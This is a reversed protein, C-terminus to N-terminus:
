ARAPSNYESRRKRTLYHLSHISITLPIRRAKIMDVPQIITTAMMGSVGGIVFPMAAAVKPNKLIGGKPGHGKDEPSSM